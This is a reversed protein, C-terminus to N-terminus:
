RITNYNYEIKKEANQNFTGIGAYFGM